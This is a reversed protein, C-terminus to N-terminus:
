GRWYPYECFSDSPIARLKITFAIKGLSGFDAEYICPKGPKLKGLSGTIHEHGPEITWGNEVATNVMRLLAKWQDEMSNSVKGENVVKGDLTIKVNVESIDVKDALMKKGVIYKASGAADAGIDAVMLNMMDAFRIDALEIAPYVEKIM